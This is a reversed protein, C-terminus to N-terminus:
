RLLLRSAPGSVEAGAAHAHTLPAAVTITRHRVSSM